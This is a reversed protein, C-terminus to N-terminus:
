FVIRTCKCYGIMQPMISKITSSFRDSYLSKESRPAVLTLPNSTYVPVAGATPPQRVVEEVAEGVPAVADSAPSTSDSSTKDPSSSSGSKSSESRARLRKSKLQRPRPSRRKTIEAVNNDIFKIKRYRSLSGPGETPNPQSQVNFALQTPQNKSSSEALFGNLNAPSLDITGPNGPKKRHTLFLPRDPFIVTENISDMTMQSNKATTAVEAHLSLIETVQLCRRLPLCSYWFKTLLLRVFARSLVSQETVVAWFLYCLILM